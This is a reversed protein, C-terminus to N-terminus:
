ISEEILDYNCQIYDHVWINIPQKLRALKATNDYHLVHAKLRAHLRTLKQRALTLSEAQVKMVVPIVVRSGDMVDLHAREFRELYEGQYWVGLMEIGTIVLCQRRQDTLPTRMVLSRFLADRTNKVVKPENRTDFFYGDTELFSALFGVKNVAIVITQCYDKCERDTTPLFTTGIVRPQVSMPPFVRNLFPNTM